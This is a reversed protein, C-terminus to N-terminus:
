VYALSDKDRERKRERERDRERERERRRGKGRARARVSEKKGCSSHQLPNINLWHWESLWHAPTYSSVGSLSRARASERERDRERDTYIIRGALAGTVRLPLFLLFPPRPSPLNQSLTLLSPLPQPPLASTTHSIYGYVYTSIDCVCSPMNGLCIQLYIHMNRYTCTDTWMHIYTGMYTWIYVCVCVCVRPSVYMCVFMMCAYLPALSISICLM